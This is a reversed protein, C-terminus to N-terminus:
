QASSRHNAVFRDARARMDSATVPQSLLVDQTEGPDAQLDFLQEPVDPMGKYRPQGLVRVYKWRDHILALTGRTLPRVAPSQELNMSWVGQESHGWVQKPDRLLPVLSRGSWSAPISANALNAITPALDVQSGLGTTRGGAALGPGHIILPIRILGESLLPGAHGGYGHAFSEGHDASILVVTNPGLAALAHRLFAGARADLYRISEDYRAMYLAQVQKPVKSWAFMFPPTSEVGTRLGPAGDISGLFPAPAAYPSHPPLLHVWMFMPGGPHRSIMERAATLGNEPDYHLNEQQKRGWARQALASPRWMSNIIPNDLVPGLYKLWRSPGDRGSFYTYIRDSAVVDFWPGYGNKYPGALPNTSVAYNRYGAAKLTAPLSSERALTTPWSHLQLSRHQTPLVGTLMSNISPTTFNSVAYFRDFVVGEAAFRDLEPTTQRGYGYVSMHQASLTDVTLMLVHPRSDHATSTVQAATAVPGGWGVVPLTLMALVALLTGILALSVLNLVAQRIAPVSAVAILASLLWWRLQPVHDAWAQMSDTQTLWLSLGYSLAFALVAGMLMAAAARSGGAHERWRAPLRNISAQLAWTALVLVLAFPLHILATTGLVPWLEVPTLYHLYSQVRELFSLPIVIGLLGAAPWLVAPVRSLM